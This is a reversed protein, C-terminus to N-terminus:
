CLLLNLKQHSSREEREEEYITDEQHMKGNYFTCVLERLGLLSVLIMWSPNVRIVWNVELTNYKVGNRQNAELM